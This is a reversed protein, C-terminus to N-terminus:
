EPLSAARIEELLAPLKSTFMEFDKRDIEALMIHSVDELLLGKESFAAGAMINRKYREYNKVAFDVKEACIDKLSDLSIKHMEVTFYLDVIDRTKIGRRTLLARIKESAIERLDYALCKQQKYLGVYDSFYVRETESFTDTDALPLMTKETIPYKIVELFTIQIKIFSEAGTFVSRYWIKFTALKNNSGHEVYRRSGKQLKFDFGYEASFEELTKGFLNIKESCIKKIQNATKNGFIEQNVFTFDIDGSIRHYNLYVKSLCTGGKFAYGRWGIGHLLMSMYFDKELLEESKLSTKGKLFAIFERLKEKNM